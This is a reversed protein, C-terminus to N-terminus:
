LPPPYIPPMDPGTAGRARVATLACRGRKRTCRPTIAGAVGLPSARPHIKSCCGRQKRATSLRGRADRLLAARSRSRNRKIRM